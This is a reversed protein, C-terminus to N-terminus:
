MECAHCMHPMDTQFPHRMPKTVSGVCKVFCQMHFILSSISARSLLPVTSDSPQRSAGIGPAAFLILWM